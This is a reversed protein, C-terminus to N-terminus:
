TQRSRGTPRPEGNDKEAEGLMIKRGRVQRVLLGLQKALVCWPM